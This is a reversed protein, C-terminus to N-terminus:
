RSAGVPGQFTRKLVVTKHTSPADLCLSVQKQGKLLAECTNGNHSLPLPDSGCGHPHPNLGQGRETPQPSLMATLQPTPQCVRAPIHRPQPQPWRGRPQSGGYATPAARFLCFFLIAKCQPSSPLTGACPRTRSLGCTVVPAVSSYEMITDLYFGQPTTVTSCHRLLAEKDELSGTTGPPPPEPPGLSTEVHSPTPPPPSLHYVSLHLRLHFISLHHCAPSLRWVCPHLLM